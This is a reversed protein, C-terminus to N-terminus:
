RSAASGSELGLAEVIADHLAPRIQRIADNSRTPNVRNTLLIVFLSRDPDIWLSTGTFGTHGFGRPSFFRGSSSPAVPVDWGLARASEGISQRTTFAQITARALLRRHAYSGGNLLMQAFAAIDSATSFLGAHGAVGGLAWANEDHVEGVILRKRYAADHETPAIRARLSRPPNFMSDRMGLPSFIERQAFVDLSIGTLRSVIEGLLIFGLDSYEIKVGPERVLPQSMVRALIAGRGKALLFFDEHAPLGSDHLLLMRVTVRDRWSPDPDSKAAHAFQPLYRVIPADLDLQNREVLKMIATTTVIPKTLSAVDYITDPTVASAKADRTFKGLSHIAIQNSWGVALVGGPFAGDSVARRLLDYAPKLRASLSAPAPQLTMPAAPVHLGDGRRAIGPVTVPIAGAIATEGLLARAAAFQAVKNTSFTALWTKANPFQAILYPSGFAAVVTPKETALLRNVFARQDDPFGVNGKRDAVRVFLAAIAVDYTEPPPLKLTGVNAFRTDAGLTQLSDVRSRIHPEITEGPCPDPDASLSVLLVRLARTFDLPLLNPSDRLLTVGRAAIMQAQAEYEPLAFNENLRAIDVLRYKVLRLRAKAALIRRVSEDIHKASIRGSKVAAELAAIAADPVPPMLIVDVGAEVARVAAEGPPYLSTVGGMEMADTIVLGGFKMENRLLGTLINRSLTAPLKADPELAPVSLHGTMISSVGAAIAARFPVLETKDLEARSGPVVALALHSDTSVNGHGPFHKATALANHDEVGRIFQAVYEAVTKPDEGFSRINIIPNDPNNNVDADPVFVWHVGAARSELAISKGAAYAVRPDGTAAIAMPSPFSTGEDLRMATGSEFDAGILLPIKARRQLENAIVATPFVQSRRLGLPGRTTAIMLGGVHNEEVQLLAEKYDPSESSTFLGVFPVMLLQGIKERLTMKKLTKEVWIQDGPQHRTKTRSNNQARGSPTM